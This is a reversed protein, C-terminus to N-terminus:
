GPQSGSVNLPLSLYHQISFLWNLEWPLIRLLPSANRECTQREVVPHTSGGSLSTPINIIPIQCPLLNPTKADAALKALDDLNFAKNALAQIQNAVNSAFESGLGYSHSSKPVM